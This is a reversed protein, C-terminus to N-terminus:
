ACGVAGLLHEESLGRFRLCRFGHFEIFVFVIPAIPHDEPVRQEHHIREQFFFAHTTADLGDINIRRIAYFEPAIPLHGGTPAVHFVVLDLVEDALGLLDLSKAVRPLQPNMRIKGVQAVTEDDGAIQEGFAARTEYLDIIFIHM